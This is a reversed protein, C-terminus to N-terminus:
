DGWDAFPTLVDFRTQPITSFTWIPVFAVFALFAALLVGGPVLRLAGGRDWVARLSYTLGIAMFPVLPTLYYLFGPRLIVLWPLYLTLLAFLVVEVTRDRRHWWVFVLHPLCALFGWWLVPNGLAVLHAVRGNGTESIYSPPTRLWLWTWAPSSREHNARFKRHYNVADIQTRFFAPLDFGSQILPGAHAALYVGGPVAVFAIATTRLTARDRGPPLVWLGIAGLLAPLAEWKCAVAAGLLGGAILLPGSLRRRDYGRDLHVLVALTAGVILPPLLSDLVATRSQVILLGDIAVLFAAATAWATSGLLRRALFWVLPVTVIGAVLSAARWGLPEDGILQIGAAILWKGLPPHELNVDFVGDLYSRAAPVYYSEDWAFGMPRRWVRFLRPAAGLLTVAIVATVAVGRRDTATLTPHDDQEVTNM